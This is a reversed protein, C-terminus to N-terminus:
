GSAALWLCADAPVFSTSGAGGPASTLVVTRGAALASPLPQDDVGLNVVVLVDDREFALCEPLDVDVWRLGGSLRRRTTLLRRYFSLMSDPDAAQTEAALAGWSPPQPLWPEHVPGSGPESFGFSTEAHSSWPMPVRCGDRGLEEGDTRIFLPDERRDDPLDLYEEPLGLEEGQFLYLAGPM